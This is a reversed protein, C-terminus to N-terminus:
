STESGLVSRWLRIFQNSGVIVLGSLPPVIEYESGSVPAFTVRGSSPPSTKLLELTRM